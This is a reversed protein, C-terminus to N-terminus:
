KAGTGSASQLFTAVKDAEAGQILDSPMSGPGEKIAALVILRTM